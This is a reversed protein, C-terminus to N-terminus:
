PYNSSFHEFYNRLADLAPLHPDLSIVGLPTSISYFPVIEVASNSYAIVELTAVWDPSWERFRVPLQQQKLWYLLHQQAIGPLAGEGKKPLYWCGQQYGWLNGTSTELWNGQADTLIAEQAEGQEARRKALWAGLYNGTKHEPLYRRYISDNVVEGKIGNQQLQSLNKPLHRPLILERGDPFITLRLIPYDRLLINSGEQLRAWNPLCWGLAILSQSLRDCHAQWHTLPHDLSQEYVRLTTFVTAGYLWGPDDQALTIRDTTLLKGEYWYM